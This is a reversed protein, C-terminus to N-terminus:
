KVGIHVRYTFYWPPPNDGLVREAAARFTPIGIQAQTFGNKLLTQVSAQSLALGVMRDADGPEVHHLAFSKTYRFHGSQQMRELHEGRPWRKIDRDYGGDTLRKGVQIMFNQDLLEAEWSIVPPYDPDIVAFIGGQRLVRAVEALTATPEMWHLSQVATVIDACTDPLGTASSWGSQYCINAFASSRAEAVHRMHEGPEIGIVSDAHEAWLRTSLGTGSGLDVVCHPRIVAAYQTLIDIIVPPLAPRYVDYLEAFGAFREVNAEAYDSDSM